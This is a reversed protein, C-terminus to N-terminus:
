KRYVALITSSFAPHNVRDLLPSRRVRLMLRLFLKVFFVRATKIGKPQVPLAPEFSGIYGVDLLAVSQRAAMQRFYELNMIALNHKQLIEKDLAAQLPTYVGCFNPVALVLVGGPKLWGLHRAVVEDPNDFHEIFGYSMVVDYVPEPPLTFFDGALIEGCPLGLLQLNKMTARMGAQSYEIGGPEMGFERAFFSLWKGPACGIELVRGSVKGSLLEKLRRALCRDFGIRMDPESPLVCDQWYREWFEQETLTSM